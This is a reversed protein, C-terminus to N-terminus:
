IAATSLCHRRPASSALRGASYCGVCRRACPPPPPRRVSHWWSAARKRDAESLDCKHVYCQRRTKTPPLSPMVDAFRLKFAALTLATFVSLLMNLHDGNPDALTYGLWQHSVFNIPAGAPIVGVVGKSVGVDHPLLKDLALFDAMRIGHMPFSEKVKSPPLTDASGADKATSPSPSDDLAYVDAAVRSSGGGFCCTSM